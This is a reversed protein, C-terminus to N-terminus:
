APSRVAAARAQALRSFARRAVRKHRASFFGASLGPQFTQSLIGSLSKAKAASESKTCTRLARLCICFYCCQTLIQEISPLNQLSDAKCLPMRENRSCFKGWFDNQLAVHILM